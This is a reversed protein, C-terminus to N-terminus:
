RAHISVLARARQRARLARFLRSFTEQWTVGTAVVFAVVFEPTVGRPDALLPFTEAPLRWIKTLTPSGQSGGASM